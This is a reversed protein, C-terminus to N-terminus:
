AIVQWCRGPLLTAGHNGTGVQVNWIESPIKLTFKKGTKKTTLSTPGSSEPALVRLVGHNSSLRPVLRAGSRFPLVNGTTAADLESRGEEEPQQVEKLSALLTGGKGQRIEIIARRKRTAKQTVSWATELLPCPDGDSGFHAKLWTAFSFFVVFIESFGWFHSM